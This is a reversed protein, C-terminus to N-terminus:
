QGVVVIEKNEVLEIKGYVIQKKIHKLLKVQGVV